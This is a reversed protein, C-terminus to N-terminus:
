SRLFTITQKMTVDFIEKRSNLTNTAIHPFVLCNDLQNLAHDSPLPEPLSVDLLAMKIDGDELAQQLAEQDCIGARSVNIFISNPKMRAFESATFLNETEKNLSCCPIVIDANALLEDFSTYVLCYDDEIMKKRNPSYYSIKPGFGVLRKAVAKGIDGMGVIGVHMASLPFGELNWMYYWPGIENQTSINKETRRLGLLLLSIIYDAVSDTTLNAVNFVKIKNRKCADSNIHNLGTSLTSIVKLNSGAAQILEQNLDDRHTCIIGDYIDQSIINKLEKQTMSRKERFVDLSFGEIGSRYYAEPIWCTVFVKFM